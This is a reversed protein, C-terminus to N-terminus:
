EPQISIRLLGADSDNEFSFELREGQRVFAGPGSFVWGFQPLVAKYYAEVEDTSLTGIDGVSEVVRGGPKDYSMALEPREVLGPMMPVDGLVEFFRVSDDQAYVAASPLLVAGLVMMVAFILVRVAM